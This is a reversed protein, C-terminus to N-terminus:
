QEKAPFHFVYTSLHDDGIEVPRKAEIGSKGKADILYHGHPIKALMVPGKTATDLLVNGKDDTIKVNVNSLYEGNKGALLLKLNYASEEKDMARMSSIDVKGSVYRIRGNDAPASKALIEDQSVDRSCSVSDGPNLPQGTEWPFAYASVAIISPLLAMTLGPLIRM